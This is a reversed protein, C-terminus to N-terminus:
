YFKFGATIEMGKNYINFQGPYISLNKKGFAYSFQAFVDMGGSIKQSFGGGIFLGYDSNKYLEMLNYEYTEGTAYEQTQKASMMFAYYLGGTIYPQSGGTLIKYNLSIPIALYNVNESVKIYDSKFTSGRQIYKLEPQISFNISTFLEIFGGMEFGTKVPTVKENAKIKAFNAGGTIGIKTKVYDNKRTEKTNIKLSLYKEPILNSSQAKISSMAVASILFVATLIFIITKM